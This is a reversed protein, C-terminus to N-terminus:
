RQFIPLLQNPASLSLVVLATTYANGYIQDGNYSEAQWAGDPGQNALLTRATSPFFKDWYEDGLQYMAQSCNFLGYHYRDDPWATPDFIVNVNYRDFKNKLIWDGTLRAEDSDHHGAHAMALVGAGAMGRSRRDHKSAVYQFTGLEPNFCRKVYAVANDIAEKPVDFGANKASRLFMLQWGTASLDSDFDEEDDHLHLYRWGGIDAERRKTWGQMILTAELASEIADRTDDEGGGMMGYSEALALGSMGHNYIIPPMPASRTLPVAAPAVLALLGNPKQMDIIFQIAHSLKDGYPGEGPIHGQSAFAMVCLSTIGPQGHPMTPFSGDPNQEAALWELAKEIAKDVKVLEEDSLPDSSVAPAPGLDLEVQCWAPPAFAILVCSLAPGPLFPRMTRGSSILEGYYKGRSLM